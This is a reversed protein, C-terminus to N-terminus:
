KALLVIRRRRVHVEAREGIAAGHEVPVYVLLEQGDHGVSRARCRYHAGQFVSDTFVVAGLSETDRAPEFLVHEPRISVRVDHGPPASGRVRIGGLPTSLKLYGDCAEEVRGAVINTEGMFTAAFLTAPELYVRDPTGCDEVRGNNLVVIRDAISMGEEQDHTVHVFTTGLSRQLGALEDQMQRRLNLDLAGLPEDLLLVEPRVAIARALAVRQRQGGSLEGVPRREFGTLGVMALVDSVRVLREKRGLGQMELGFAINGAVNMHPFLAYDQFVTSTPRRAPPTRTVDNGGIAVRGSTPEVFGGLISLLTTKGSGSPGLLVVFEGREISLNVDCVAPIGAYHKTVGELMVHSGNM